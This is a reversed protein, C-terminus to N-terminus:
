LGAPTSVIDSHRRQLRHIPLLSLDQHAFGAIEISSACAFNALIRDLDEHQLESQSGSALNCQEVQLVAAPALDSSRIEFREHSVPVAVLLLLWASQRQM